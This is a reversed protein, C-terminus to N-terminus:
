NNKTAGHDHRKGKRASSKSASAAAEPPCPKNMQMSGAQSGGGKGATHDHRKMTTKGCDVPQVAAAPSTPAPAAQGRAIAPAITLAVVSVLSLLHIHKMAIRRIFNFSCRSDKGIARAAITAGTEGLPGADPVRVM